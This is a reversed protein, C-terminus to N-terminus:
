QDKSKHIQQQKEDKVVDPASKCFFFFTTFVKNITTTMTQNHVITVVKQYQHLMPNGNTSPLTFATTNPVPVPPVSAPTPM